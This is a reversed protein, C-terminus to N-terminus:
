AWPAPGNRNGYTKVGKTRKVADFKSRSPTRTSIPTARSAEGGLMRWQVDRTQTKQAHRVSVQGRLCRVSGPIARAPRFDAAHGSRSFYQSLSLSSRLAKPAAQCMTSSQQTSRRVSMSIASMITRSESQIAETLEDHRICAEEQTYRM